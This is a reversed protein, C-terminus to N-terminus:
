KPHGLEIFLSYYFRDANTLSKITLNNSRVRSEFETWIEAESFTSAMENWLTNAYLIKNGYYMEIRRSLSLDGQKKALEFKLAEIGSYYQCILISGSKSLLSRLKRYLEDKEASNFYFLVYNLLILDYRGKLEDSLISKNSITVSDDSKFESLLKEYLEAQIEVGHIQAGPKAEKVAHIYNGYGCGIDLVKVSQQDHFRKKIIEIFRPRTYNHFAKRGSESYYSEDFPSPIKQGLKLKSLEFLTEALRVEYDLIGSSILAKWKEPNKLHHPVYDKNRYCKVLEMVRHYGTIIQRLHPNEIGISQGSKESIMANIYKGDHDSLTPFNRSESNVLDLQVLLEHLLGTVRENEGHQALLQDNQYTIHLGILRLFDLFDHYYRLKFAVTSNGINRAIRTALSEPLSLKNPKKNGSTYELESFNIM